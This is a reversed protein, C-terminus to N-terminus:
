DSADPLEPDGTESETATEAPASTSTPEPPASTSTQEPPATTTESHRTAQPQGDSPTLRERVLAHMTDILVRGDSVVIKMENRQFYRKNNKYDLVFGVVVTKGDAKPVETVTIDEITGWYRDFREKGVSRLDETLLAWGADTDEPMVDYFEAVVQEYDAATVTASTTTGPSTSSETTGKGTGPVRGGSGWDFGLAVALVAAVVLVATGIAAYVGRRPKDPLTWEDDGTVGEPWLEPQTLAPPAGTVVTPGAPVVTTISPERGTAAVAVLQHRVVEMSPRSNPDLRMMLNLQETLPGARQPQNVRGAAVAVLVALQNDTDGTPPSGEVAKYLTAGLSYVDSPPGPEEGRAAEPALYAPTGALMGTATVTVDGIARSIGFDTLKIGGGHGLLINAPKVDRHVVGVSHAQALAAAVEAGIRAVERPALSGREALVDALSRSPVYEMILVPRGGDDVVDFVTVANAHKIRAAIRGERLARQRARETEQENLGAPLLLEKAAVTRHLREDNALWVAGMAGSGLKRTVRYRGAILRGDQESVPTEVTDDSTQVM